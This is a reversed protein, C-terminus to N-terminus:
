IKCAAALAEAIAIELTRPAVCDGIRYCPREPQLQDFDDVAHCGPWDVLLDIDDREVEREDFVNRLLVKHEDAAVVALGAGFRCGLKGLRTYWANRVTPDLDNGVAVDSTVIEVATGRELLIEAAVLGAQGRGENLVLAREAPPPSQIVAHPSRLTLAYSGALMRVYDRSGAAVVIADGDLDDLAEPEIARHYHIAVGLRELERMRWDLIAGFEATSPAAAWLPLQGGARDHAEFIEVAHGREAAVRAAELGAPGAGIVAIRRRKRAKAPTKGPQGVAANHICNIPRGAYRNAICTNAGVCPRIRGTEGRQIKAM